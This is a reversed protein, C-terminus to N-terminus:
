QIFFSSNSHIYNIKEKAAMYERCSIKDLKIDNSIDEQFLAVQKLAISIFFLAVTLYCTIALNYFLLTIQQFVFVSFTRLGSVDSYATSYIRVNINIPNIVFVTLAMLIFFIVADKTYRKVLAPVSASYVSLHLQRRLKHMGYALSGVQVIPIIMDYLVDIAVGAAKSIDLYAQTTGILFVQLIFGIGAMVLLIIQWSQAIIRLCIHDKEDYQYYGIIMFFIMLSRDAKVIDLLTSDDIRKSVDCNNEIDINDNNHMTNNTMTIMM